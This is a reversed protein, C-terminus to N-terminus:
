SRFRPPAPRPPAPCPPAHSPRALSALPQARGPAQRRELLRAARARCPACARLGQGARAGGGRRVADQTAQDSPFVKALGNGLIISTVAM